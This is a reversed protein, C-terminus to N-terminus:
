DPRIEATRRLTPECWRSKFPHRSASLRQRLALNVSPQAITEAKCGVRAVRYRARPPDHDM